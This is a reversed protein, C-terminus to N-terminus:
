TSMSAQQSRPQHAAPYSYFYAPVYGMSILDRIELQCLLISGGFVLSVFIQPIKVFLDLLEHSQKCAMWERAIILTIAGAIAVLANTM